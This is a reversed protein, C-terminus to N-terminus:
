PPYKSESIKIGTKIPFYISFFIAKQFFLLFVLNHFLSEIVLDTVMYITKKGM